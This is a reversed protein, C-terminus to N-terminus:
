ITAVARCTEGTAPNRATGVVRDSGAQNAIVRRVEFSGSPPATRATGGFVKVGNDRLAVNWNVGNRNQDVEFEVEIRGNEPSLKIKSESAGTCTGARRVDGDKASAASAPGLVCAALALVALPLATTKKM